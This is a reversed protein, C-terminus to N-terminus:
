RCIALAITYPGAVRHRVLISHAPLGTGAIHARMSRRPTWSLEVDRLTDCLHRAAKLTAEKATWMELATPATNSLADLCAIEEPRLVRKLLHMPLPKTVEVDVGVTGSALRDAIAAVATGNSHAISIDLREDLDPREAIAFRPAGRSDNRIEIATYAPVPEDRRRCAARLARKAALRGALWDARRRELPLEDLVARENETLIGDVGRRAVVRDVTSPTM